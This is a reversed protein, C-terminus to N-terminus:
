HPALPAGPFDLFSIEGPPPTLLPLAVKLVFEQVPQFKKEPAM